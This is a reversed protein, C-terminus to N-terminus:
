SQDQRPHQRCASTLLRGVMAGARILSFSPPDSLCWACLHRIKSLIWYYYCRCQLPEPDPHHFCPSCHNAIKKCRRKFSFVFHQPIENFHFICISKLNPALCLDNISNWSLKNWWKWSVYRQMFCLVLKASHITRLANHSNCGKWENLVTITQSLVKSIYSGMSVQSWWM